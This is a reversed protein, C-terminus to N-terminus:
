PTNEVVLQDTDDPKNEIDVTINSIPKVETGVVRDDALVVDRITYMYIRELINEIPDEADVYSTQEIYFRKGPQDYLELWKRTDLANILIKNLVLDQDTRNSILHIAIVVNSSLSPSNTVKFTGENTKEYINGPPLGIDGGYIRYTFVVIRPAKKEYKNRASSQNFLEIYFGKTNNIAKRDALFQDDGAKTDPYLYIDPSYNLAVVGKRLVEFVTTQLRDQLPDGIAM